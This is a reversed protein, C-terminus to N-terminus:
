YSILYNVKGSARWLRCHTVAVLMTLRCWPLELALNHSMFVDSHSWPFMVPDSFLQVGPAKPDVSSLIAERFLISVKKSHAVKVNRVTWASGASSWTLSVSTAGSEVVVASISGIGRGKVAESESSLPIVSSSMLTPVEQLRPACELGGSMGLM